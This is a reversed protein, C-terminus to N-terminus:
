PRYGHFAALLEGNTPVHSSTAWDVIIDASEASGRSRVVAATAVAALVAAAALMRRQYRVLRLEDARQARSTEIRSIVHRVVADTRGPNDAADLTRLDLRGEPKDTM